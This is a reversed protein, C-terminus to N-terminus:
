IKQWQKRYVSISLGPELDLCDKKSVREFEKPIEPLLVDGDSSDFVTTLHIREVLDQDFASQLVQAGGILFIKGKQLYFVEQLDSVVVDPSYKRNRYSVDNSVVVHYRNPLRRGLSEFTKRGMVITHGETLAKFNALDEKSKWPIKNNNGIVKKLNAAIVVEYKTTRNEM